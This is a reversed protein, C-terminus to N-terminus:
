RAPRTARDSWVPMPSDPNGCVYRGGVTLVNRLYNENLHAFLKDQDNLAPGIGGEATRATAAPATRRSSTTAASSPPSRSPGGRRRSAADVARAARRARLVTASRHVPQRVLGPLRGLPRRGVPPRDQRLPGADPGGNRPDPRRPFRDATLQGAPGARAAAGRSDAAARRPPSTGRAPAPTGADDAMLHLRDPTRPPIIGPQGVAVPLPGLTIKGTDLTLVGGADVSVSFRDMSRPAPGYQPGAAKIGSGTTARAM